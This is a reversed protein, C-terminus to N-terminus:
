LGGAQYEVKPSNKDLKKKKRKRRFAGSFMCLYRSSDPEQERKVKDDLTSLLSNPDLYDRWYSSMFILLRCQLCM